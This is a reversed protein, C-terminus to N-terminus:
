RLPRSYGIAVEIGHLNMTRTGRWRDVRLTVLASSELVRVLTASAAIGIETQLEEERVLPLRAARSPLLYHLKPGVLLYMPYDLRMVRLAEHTITWLALDHSKLEVDEVEKRKFIKFQGGVGMLWTGDLNHRYGIVPHYQGPKYSNQTFSTPYNRAVELSVYSKAFPDPDAQDYEATQAEAVFSLGFSMAISLAVQRM